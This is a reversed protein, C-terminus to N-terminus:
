IGPTDGQQCKVERSCHSMRLILGVGRRCAGYEGFTFLVDVYAIDAWDDLPRGCM